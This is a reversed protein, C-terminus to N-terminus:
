EREWYDRRCLGRMECYGCVGAVGQAPLEAGARLATFAADLRIATHAAIDAADGVAPVVTIGHRELAIYGAEVPPTGALQLLLAYSALQVDEGPVAASKRLQSAARMKYDMVAFEGAPNVDVRDLRGTLVLTGGDSLPLAHEHRIEAAHFRWGAHERWRQWALYSEMMGQWEAQYAAALPNRALLPAFEKESLEGLLHLCDAEPKGTVLPVRRHFSNLIRHV